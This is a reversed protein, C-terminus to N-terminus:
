KNCYSRKWKIARTTTELNHHIFARVIGTEQRFFGIDKRLSEPQTVRNVNVSRTVGLLKIFDGRPRSSARCIQPAPRTHVSSADMM